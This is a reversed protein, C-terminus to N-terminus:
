LVHKPNKKQDLGAPHMDIKIFTGDSYGETRIYIFCTPILM